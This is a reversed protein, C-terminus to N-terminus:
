DRGREMFYEAMTMAAYPAIFQLGPAEDGGAVVVITNELMSANRLEAIVGAVASARQGVACYVCVVGTSRQNLMAAVAVATKGSQRDGVILERQGRGIPVVADVATIGTQLPADVPARDIIAPAPREVPKRLATKIPGGGDRPRGLADVVRGLLAEGVPADVVRGTRRVEDGVRLADSPGLLIVGARREEVDAAVGMLQDPFAVLEDAALGPLDRVEAVGDGVEVVVGADVLEIGTRMRRRAADAAAAFPAAVRDELVGM